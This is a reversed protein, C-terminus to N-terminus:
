CSSCPCCCTTSLAGPIIIISSAGVPVLLCACMSLWASHTSTQWSAPLCAPAHVWGFLSFAHKNVMQIIGSANITIIAANPDLGAIPKGEDDVHLEQVNNEAAEEQKDAESHLVACACTYTHPLHPHTHTVAPACSRLVRRTHVCASEKQFHFTAPCRLRGHERFVALSCRQVPVTWRM